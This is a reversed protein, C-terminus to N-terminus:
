HITLQNKLLKVQQQINVKIKLWTPAFFAFVAFQLFALAAAALFGVRYGYSVIKGDNAVNAFWSDTILGFVIPGFLSGINIAM